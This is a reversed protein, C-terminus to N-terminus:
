KLEREEYRARAVNAAERSKFPTANEKASCWFDDAGCFQSKRWRQWELVFGGQVEIVDYKAPRLAVEVQIWGGQLRANRIAM